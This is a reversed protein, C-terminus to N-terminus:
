PHSWLHEVSVTEVGVSAAIVDGIRRAAPASVDAVTVDAVSRDAVSTLYLRRVEGGGSSVARDVATLAARPHLATLRICHMGKGEFDARLGVAAGTAAPDDRTENSAQM